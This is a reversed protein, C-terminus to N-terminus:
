SRDDSTVDLSDIFQEVAAPVQFMKTSGCFTVKLSALYVQTYTASISKLRRKLGDFRKCKCLVAASFDQIIIVTSQGHKLAQNKKAGMDWLANM